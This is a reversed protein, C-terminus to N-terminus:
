KGNILKRLKQSLASEEEKPSAKIREKDRERIYETDPIMHKSNPTKSNSPQVQFTGWYTITEGVLFQQGDLTKNWVINFDKRNLTSKFKVFRNEYGWTDKLSETSTFEITTMKKIGKITLEGTAKFTNAKIMKIDSSKFTIHPHKESQFFDNGRLHNDRMKNGTDISSSLIQVVVSEPTGNKDSLLMEGHFENFRGTLDSVGM